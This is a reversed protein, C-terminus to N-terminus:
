FQAIHKQDRARPQCPTPTLGEKRWEDADAEMRKLHETQDKDLYITRGWWIVDWMYRFLRYINKM